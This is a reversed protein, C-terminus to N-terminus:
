FYHIISFKSAGKFFFGNPALELMAGFIELDSDFWVKIQLQLVGLYQVM